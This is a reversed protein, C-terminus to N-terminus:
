IQKHDITNFFHFRLFFLGPIAWKKFFFLQDIRQKWRCLNEIQVNRTLIATYWKIREFFLYLLLHKSFDNM